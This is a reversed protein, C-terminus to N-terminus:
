RVLLLAISNVNTYTPGTVILSSAQKLAEYSSHRSLHECPDVGKEVMVSYTYSDVIGGAADTPGDTGDTDYAALAAGRIGDLGISAALAIEQNPGGMGHEEGLTVTSEGGLVLLAPPKLPRNYQKIERAISAIMFGITSAEGEMSTTLIATNLGYGRAKEELAECVVRNSLVIRNYVRDLPKKLTESAEGRMGRLIHNRVSEPAKDWLRYYKLVRYADHFTTPDPATPGSAIDELTDGVVDSVILSVIRARTALALGGGKIRSLHRRVTNVERISAGSRLLLDVTRVYDELSIDDAPYVVLSSGGGSILVILLDDKRLGQVFELVRTGATLSNSDPIPHGAEVVDIRKLKISYGYKTVALGRSVLDGLKDEIARAMSCAAKGIALVYIDGSFGIRLDGVIVTHDSVDISSYVARYPDAVELSYDILDLLLSKAWRDGYSLIGEKNKVIRAM